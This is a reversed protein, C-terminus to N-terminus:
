CVGRKYIGKVQQKEMKDRFEDAKLKGWKGWGEWHADDASMREVLMPKSHPRALAEIDVVDAEILTETAEIIDEVLRDVM